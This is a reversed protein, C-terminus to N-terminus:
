GRYLSATSDSGESGSGTDIAVVKGKETPQSTTSPNNKPNIIVVEKGSGEEYSASSSVSSAKNSVGNTSVINNANGKINDVWEKKNQGQWISQRQLIRSRERKDLADFDKRSLGGMEKSLDYEAGSRRSKFIKDIKKPKTKEEGETKTDGKFNKGDVRAIVEKQEDTLKNMIKEPDVKPLSDGM